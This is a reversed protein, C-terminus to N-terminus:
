LNEALSDNSKNSKSMLDSLKTYPYALVGRLLQINHPASLPYEILILIKFVFFLIGATEPHFFTSSLLKGYQQAVWDDAILQWISKPLVTGLLKHASLLGVLLLRQCGITKSRDIALKWEIELHRDVLEAIDCIKALVCTQSYVDKAIQISLVLLIDEVSFNKVKKGLLDVSQCREICDKFNLRFPYYYQAMGQHLDIAVGTDFHIFTLEWPYRQNLQYGQFNLLSESKAVDQPAVLLDIDSFQRLCMDGYVAAALVSGKYPIVPIDAAAFEALLNLMKSTLAMAFAANAQNLERLETRIDIPLLDGGIQQLNRCLLPIVHHYNALEILQEWNIEQQILLGIQATIDDNVQTRACCLLLQEEISSNLIVSSQLYASTM